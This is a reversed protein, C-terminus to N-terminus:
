KTTVFKKGNIMKTSKSTSKVIGSNGNSGSFSSFSSFSILVFVLFKIILRTEEKLISYSLYGSSGLGFENMNPFGFFAQMSNIGHDHLNASTRSRKQSEKLGHGKRSQAGLDDNFVDFINKTGFFEEFIDQPSRFHFGGGFGHFAFPDFDFNRFERGGRSSASEGAGRIL